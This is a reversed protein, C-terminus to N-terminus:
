LPDIEGAFPKCSVVRMGNPTLAKPRLHDRRRVLRRVALPGFLPSPPQRAQALQDLQDVVFQERDKTQCPFPRMGQTTELGTQSGFHAQMVKADPEVTLEFTSRQSKSIQNIPLNSKM